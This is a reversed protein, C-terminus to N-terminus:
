QNSKATIAVLDKSKRKEEPIKLFEKYCDNIYLTLNFEHSTFTPVNPTYLVIFNEMEQGRIPVYNKLGEPSFINAIKAKIAEDKETQADKKRKNEGSHSDFVHFTLGGDYRGTDDQHYVVTQGGFPSLKPKANVNGLKTEQGTVKVENLTKSKLLLTVETYKLDKVYLTDPQYSFGIFVVVDGVKAPISYGGTHDSVVSNNTKLNRVVIGPIPIHTKDEYVRGTLSDQAHLANVLLLCFISILILRIM